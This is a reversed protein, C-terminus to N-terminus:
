TYSPYIDVLWFFDHACDRIAKYVKMAVIFRCLFQIYKHVSEGCMGVCIFVAMRNSTSM